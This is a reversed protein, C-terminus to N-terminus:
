IMSEDLRRYIELVPWFVSTAYLLVAGVAVVLFIVVPLVTRLWIANFRLRQRYHEAVSKLRISFRGSDGSAQRLCVTLMPPLETSNWKKGIVMGDTDGQEIRRAANQSALDLQGSGCVAGSLIMAETLPMQRDVLLALMRTLTYFQLDRVLSRVGPILLLLREPGRFAMSSARGTVIWIGTLVAVASPIAWIWEPHSRNLTLMRELADPFTINLQQAASFLQSLTHQLILVFLLWAVILITLPYAMAKLVQRRLEVLDEAFDGMMEITDGLNGSKVGAAIASALMRSGGSGEQRVLHELSQGSRLGDAISSAAAQLRSGHGKAADALHQELPLGAHVLLRVEDSLNKIDELSLSSTVSM